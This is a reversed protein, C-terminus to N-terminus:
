KGQRALSEAARRKAEADAGSQAGREVVLRKAEQEREKSGLQRADLGGRTDQKKDNM